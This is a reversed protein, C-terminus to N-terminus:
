QTFNVHIGCKLISHNFDNGEHEVIIFLKKKKYISYNVTNQYQNYM